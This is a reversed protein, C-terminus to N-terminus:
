RNFGLKQKVQKLDWVPRSLSGLQEFISKDFPKPVKGRGLLVPGM